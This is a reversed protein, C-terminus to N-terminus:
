IPLQASVIGGHRSSAQRIHQFVPERPPFISRRILRGGAHTTWLRQSVDSRRKLRCVGNSHKHRRIRHRLPQEGYKEALDHLLPPMNKTPMDLLNGIILLPKPGPPLPLSSLRSRTRIRLAVWALLGLLLLTFLGVPEVHEM